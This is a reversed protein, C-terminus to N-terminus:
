TLDKSAQLAAYWTVCIFILEGGESLETSNALRWYLKIRGSDFISIGCSFCAFLSVFLGLFPSSSLSFAFSSAAPM